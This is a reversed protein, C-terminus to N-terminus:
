SASRPTYLCSSTSCTSCEVTEFSISRESQSMLTNLLRKMKQSKITSSYERVAAIILKVNTQQNHLLESVWLILM